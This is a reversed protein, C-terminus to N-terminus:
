LEQHDSTVHSDVRTSSGFILLPPTSTDRKVQVVRLAMLMMEQLVVCRVCAACDEEAAALIFQKSQSMRATAVWEAIFGSLENIRKKKDDKWFLNKAKEKERFIISVESM